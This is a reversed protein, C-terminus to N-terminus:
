WLLPLRDYGAVGMVHQRLGAADAVRYDPIRRHWEELAVRLELRALHSGLCRHPGAGFALHRNAERGVQVTEGDRFEGTDRDAALTPLLVHDGARMPCGGFEIDRTVVRIPTVISYARLLEEVTDAALRPDTALGARLDPADALHRFMYGLAGAVTDLGAMYLLFSIQLLEQDDLPRGDVECALLYSVIDDRPEARREALLTGLYGYIDMAATMRQSGDDAPAHMLHDAWDLFTDADEVPLGMLQMFIITPYRRAFDDVFECGGRSALGDVLSACHSRIAGEIAEARGPTFLPTLLQRYRTHEPPDLEEPILPPFMRPEDGPPDLCGQSSFVDYRQFAEHVDDYRLLVWAPTPMTANYFSRHQARLRDFRGFPDALLEPDRDMPVQLTPVESTPRRDASM